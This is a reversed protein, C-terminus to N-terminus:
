KEEETNQKGRKNTIKVKTGEELEKSIAKYPGSVVMQDEELGETIEMYTDDSIGTKVEKMKALNGEELFVVEVPKLKEKRAEANNTSDGNEEEIVDEKKPIRATVSQIPVSLVDRRTDTKIDADCSMGPRIKEDLDILRIEVEFNVVENQTGTASMIASNGIQTVVGNFKKDRFADIEITATDGVSVLVVDNEDVEVIAEMQNLDAVTMLHTGQSFSSGLVRESKEVNLASVTGDLPSYIATKDLEVVADNYNEQAQQVSAKQAEVRSKAGIYSAKASELDSESALQKEFLEKIRNYNAEVEILTAERERLSAQSLNLSAQAVNRRAIYQDPKLRILLQGKNVKDGEKVPLEVIEGTVEPRLEVKEVPDITGNASVIQTINRKIVKETQVPVIKEKDGSFVVLLVVILLLLGLAGFVFWKKKSKKRNGKAM